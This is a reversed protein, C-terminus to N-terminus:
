GKVVNVTEAATCWHQTTPGRSRPRGQAFNSLTQGLSSVAGRAAGLSPDVLPGFDEPQDTAFIKFLEEGLGDTAANVSFAAIDALEDGQVLDNKVGLYRWGDAVSLQRAAPSGPVNGDRDRGPWLQIVGQVNAAPRPNVNLLALYPVFSAGGVATAQLRVQIAFAAHSNANQGPKFVADPSLKTVQTGTANMTVPIFRMELHTTIPEAPALARVAQRRAISQLEEALAAADREVPGDLRVTDGTVGGADVIDWQNPRPNETAVPRAVRFDFDNAPAKVDVMPVDSLAGALALQLGSPLDGTYVRISGDPKGDILKGQANARLPTLDGNLLRKSEASLELDCEGTRVASVTATWTPPGNTDVGEPFLGILFGQKLGHISGGGMILKAGATHVEFSSRPPFYQNGLITRDSDGEERPDQVNPPPLISAMRARVENFLSLYTRSPGPEQLAAVLARTFVGGQRSEWAYQDPAAASLCVLGRRGLEHTLTEAKQPNGRARYRDLAPNQIPGRAIFSGRTIEGSHCSDFTLTVNDTKGKLQDFLAGIEPGTILSDPDVEGKRLGKAPEDAALDRADSPVIAQSLRTAKSMDVVQFGHGAYGFYVVDNQGCEDILKSRILGVIAKKTTLAPETVKVIDGAPIHWSKELVVQLSDLDVQVGALPQFDPCAPSPVGVLLVHYRPAAPQPASAFLFALASFLIM